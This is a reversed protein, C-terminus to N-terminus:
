LREPARYYTVACAYNLANCVIEARLSDHTVRLSDHTVRLSDHTVRLSDHTVRLSDHTV